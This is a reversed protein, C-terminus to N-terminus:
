SNESIDSIFVSYRDVSLSLTVFCPYKCINKNCDNLIIVRCGSCHDHTVALKRKLNEIAHCFLENLYNCLAIFYDFKFNLFLGPAHIGEFQTNQSTM